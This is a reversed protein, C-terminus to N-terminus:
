IKLKDTAIIFMSHSWCLPSVSVQINNDFIQEPINDDKLDHLVKNYYRLAKKRNINAYYIAMWFNLLPWYGSGKKRHYSGYMWGDYEDHEYRHIGSKTSLKQEILEVTKQMRKDDPPIIKAPWVLGLLSTDIRTDNIKGKSRFFYEKFSELVHRMQRATQRWRKNPIIKDACELGRACIALSYTFNEKLDPFCFREEWLDQTICDFHDKKWLNCIADAALTILKTQDSNTEKVHEYATILVSGTQDPQFHHLAKKGNIYYKEYFLGKDQAKLCWDLYKEQIPIDLIRAAKCTYMADRPWVFRYNKAEKRTYPAAVLAGNPRSCDKIVKRTKTMLKEQM